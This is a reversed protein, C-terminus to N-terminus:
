AFEPALSGTLPPTPAPVPRGAPMAAKWAAVVDNSLVFEFLQRQCRLRLVQGGVVARGTALESEYSVEEIWELDLSAQMDSNEYYFAADTLALAVALHRSGDVFEGLSVIRSSPRRREIISQLHRSGLKRYVAWFSGAVALTAAILIWLM